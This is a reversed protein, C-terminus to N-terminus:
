DRNLLESPDLGTEECIEKFLILLEPTVEHCFFEINDGYTIEIRRANRLSKMTMIDEIRDIEPTLDSIWECAEESFGCYMNNLEESLPNINKFYSILSQSIKDKTEQKHQQGRKSESISRKSEESLRYGLPRGRRGDGHKVKMTKWLRRARPSITASM